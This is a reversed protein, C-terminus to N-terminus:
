RAARYSVNITQSIGPFRTSTLRTSTSTKTGPEPLGRAAAVPRTAVVLSSPMAQSRATRGATSSSGVGSAAKGERASRRATATSPCASRGRTTAREAAMSSALASQVTLCIRNFVTLFHTEAFARAANEMGLGTPQADDGTRADARREDRADVGKRPVRLGEDVARIRVAVLRAGVAHGVARVDRRVRDAAVEAGGLRAVVTRPPKTRGISEAAELGGLAPPRFGWLTTMGM